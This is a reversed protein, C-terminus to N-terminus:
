SPFLFPSGGPAPPCSGRKRADFGPAEDGLAEWLLGTHGRPPMEPPLTPDDRFCPLLWLEAEAKPYSFLPSGHVFSTSSTDRAPIVQPPGAAKIGRGPSATAQCGMRKRARWSGVRARLSAAQESQGAPLMHRPQPHPPSLVPDPRAWGVQPPRLSPRPLLGSVGFWLCSPPSAPPASDQLRTRGEKM